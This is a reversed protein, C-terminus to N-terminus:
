SAKARRVTVSSLNLDMADEKAVSRRLAVTGEAADVIEVIRGIRQTMETDGLEHSLQAARGLKQTALDENGADRAKLGEQIAAALAGRGTAEAVKADIQTTLDDRDTWTAVVPSGKVIMEKGDQDFVISPRCVLMEDGIIGPPMDFAVHFDRAERGWAGTPFELTKDDIRAGRGTLDEQVPQIQKVMVIKAAKLTWLRLRVNAISREMAEALAARFDAPIEEPLKIIAATGLLRSAIEKLQDQDWDTGIGRCDCQFQGEARGLAAALHHEQEGENKGDTLFIAHRIEVPMRALAERTLDIGTSMATGGAAEITQVKRDALAKNVPSAQVPDVIIAAHTNFTVVAFWAAEPLIEIGKRVAHKADQIKSGGMSGSVDLIFCVGLSRATSAGEAFSTATLVANVRASNGPLYANQFTELRFLTDSM